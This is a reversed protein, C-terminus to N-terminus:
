YYGWGPLSYFKYKNGKDIGLMREIKAITLVRFYTGWLDSKFCNSKMKDWGSYSYYYEKWAIKDKLREIISRNDINYSYGGGKNQNKKIISYTKYISEKIFDYKYDPHKLMTSLIEITDYDECAGSSLKSGFLGYSNQLKIVNDVIEDKYNIERGHFDYYLYIHSAGFMGNELSAGNRTGWFGTDADQKSDLFDFLYSILESNDINLREQEYTLFYLLFMIKNSTYWFNRFDQKKLWKELPKRNKLDTLFNFSHRPEEGLMDLAITTFYTFQWLIYEEEFRATQKIDFNDDIFLGTKSDQQKKLTIGIKDVPCDALNDLLFNLQVGFSTSLITLNGNEFFKFGCNKNDFLKKSYSLIESIRM